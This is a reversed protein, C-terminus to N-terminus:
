RARKFFNLLKNAAKVQEPTSPNQQAAQSPNLFQARRRRREAETSAPAQKGQVPAQVAPAGKAPAPPGGRDKSKTEDDLSVVLREEGRVMVVKSPEIEKVTFGSLSEGPRLPIQKKGRTPTNQPAKRDEMYAVHLDDVLLTGYLVFEPTPLPQAVEKKEVPM